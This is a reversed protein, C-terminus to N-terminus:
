GALGGLFAFPSVRRHDYAVRRNLEATVQADAPVEGQLRKALEAATAEDDAGILVYSWRHVNPIGEAELTHSVEAAERRSTCQVRVEFEPYGQEASEEREVEAREQLEESAQAPTSPLPADPGEWQEATPHWHTLELDTTWGHQDALQRIVQRAREAQDRTGTYCFLEAGDVSIVVREKFSRELDHELDEAQLLGSLRHAIGDDHLDVRLRWDDSM